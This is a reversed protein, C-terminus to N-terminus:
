AAQTTPLVASSLGGCRASHQAMQISFAYFLDNSNDDQATKMKMRIDNSHNAERQHNPPAVSSPTLDGSHTAGLYPIDTFPSLTLLRECMKEPTGM